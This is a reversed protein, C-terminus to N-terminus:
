FRVSFFLRGQYRVQWDSLNCLVRMADTPLNITTVVIWQRIGRAKVEANFRYPQQLQQQGTSIQQQKANADNEDEEDALQLLPVDGTNTSPSTVELTSPKDASTQGTRGSMAEVVVAVDAERFVQVGLLLTGLVAAAVLVAVSRKNLLISM